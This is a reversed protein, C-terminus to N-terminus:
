YNNSQSMLILYILSGKLPVRMKPKAVNFEALIITAATTIEQWDKLIDETTTHASTVTFRIM